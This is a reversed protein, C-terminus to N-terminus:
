RSLGEAADCLHIVPELPVSPDGAHIFALSWPCPLVFSVRTHTNVRPSMAILYSLGISARDQPTTNVNIGGTLCGGEFALACDSHSQRGFGVVQARNRRRRNSLAGLRPIRGIAPVAKLAEFDSGRPNGAWFVKNAWDLSKRCAVRSFERRPTLLQLNPSRNSAVPVQCPTLEIPLELPAVHRHVAAAAPRWAANPTWALTVSLTASLYCRWSSFAHWSSCHQNITMLSTLSNTTLGMWPFPSPV